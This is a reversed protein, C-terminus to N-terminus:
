EHGGGGEPEAEIWDGPNTGKVGHIPCALDAIRYGGTYNFKPCVCESGGEAGTAEVSLARRTACPYAYSCECWAGGDDPVQQHFWLAATIRTEAAALAAVAKDLAQERLEDLQEANHARVEAAALAAQDKSLQRVVSLHIKRLREIDGGEDPTAPALDAAREIDDDAM